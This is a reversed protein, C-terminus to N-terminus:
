EVDSTHTNYQILNKNFQITNKEILDKVIVNEPSKANNLLWDELEPFHKLQAVSTLHINDLFLTLLHTWTSIYMSEKSPTRAVHINGLYSTYQELEKDYCWYCGPISLLFFAKMWNFIQQNKNQEQEKVKFDSCLDQWDHYNFQKAIINYCIDSHTHIGHNVFEQNLKIAMSKINDLDFEFHFTM